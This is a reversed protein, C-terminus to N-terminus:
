GDSVLQLYHQRRHASLAVIDPEAWGYALALAHVESLLRRAWADFEQWLYNAIDFSGSWSAGCTECSVPLQVDALQDAEALAAGVAAVVQQPLEDATVQDSGREASQVTRGVLLARAAELSGTTAADILDDPRLTRCEARYDGVQVQFASPGSPVALLASVPLTLELAIGCAPCDALTRLTEGFLRECLGALLRDREGLSLEALDDPGDYAIRLLPSIRHQEPLAAGADWADLLETRAPTRM